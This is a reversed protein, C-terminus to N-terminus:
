PSLRMLARTTARALADVEAGLARIARRSAEARDEAALLRAVVQETGRAAGLARAHERFRTAEAEGLALNAKAQRLETRKAEARALLAAADSVVARQAPPVSTAVALESLESATLTAVAHKRVLGEEVDLTREADSRAKLAFVAYASQRESDYVIEDAGHVSANNVYGLTLFLSRPAGSRNALHDKVHHHRVYHEVLAWPEFGLARPEDHADDSTRALSVDLDAGYELTVTAHPKLRPLAAEGAFGGDDFVAITGPPLTQGGDHTLYVASRADSGPAAFLAIRRATIREGLFPVLASAHAALALKDALTYRFLAGSEVGAASTVAALNGITFGDGTDEGAGNGRGVGHGLTGISGLGIGEGRGGGGEGVGSLALGASGYAEEDDPTWLADPTTRMLQPVTSLEHDPTVLERRAYRPAALPFLFSDPRGNVLEVSVDRWSEDTDNHVLAWGQLAAEKGAADLVLRYSARWVPAESVYGLSVSQGRALVRLEKLVRASGGSLADLAAGLRAGFATDLPRVGLLDRLAFRRLEGAKTMVVLSDLPQSQCATNKTDARNPVCTTLESETGTLVDVLRGSAVDGHLTLEVNAGRLSELLTVLGLRTADPALGALATGMGRSVSSPFEVGGVRSPGDKAYVVLTKLADDLHSAPVPLTVANTGVAGSREFYAVGTEYFRVRKLPLLESRAGAPAAVASAM